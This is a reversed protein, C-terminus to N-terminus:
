PAHMNGRARMLAPVPLAQWSCLSVRQRYCTGFLPETNVYMMSFQNLLVLRRRLQLTIDTITVVVVALYVCGSHGCSLSPMLRGVAAAPVTGMVSTVATAVGGTLLRRLHLPVVAGARQASRSATRSYSGGGRGGHSSDSSRIRGHGRDGRRWSVWPAYASTFPCGCGADIRMRPPRERFHVRFLPPPHPPFHQPLCRARGPQRRAPCRPSPM